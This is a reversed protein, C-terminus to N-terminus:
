EMLCRTLALLAERKLGRSIPLRKGGTEVSDGTVAAVARANVLYRQHIRVFGDGLEAAVDDLKAYFPYERQGTVVSVLRRDSRCYLIDRLPVRYTGEANRLVYCRPADAELKERVRDLLAALKAQGVPKM